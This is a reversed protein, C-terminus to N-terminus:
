RHKIALNEVYVRRYNNLFPLSTSKKTSHNAVFRINKFSVRSFKGNIEFSDYTLKKCDTKKWNYLKALVNNEM